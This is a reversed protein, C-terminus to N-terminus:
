VIVSVTQVSDAKEICLLKHGIHTALFEALRMHALNATKIKTLLDSHDSHM